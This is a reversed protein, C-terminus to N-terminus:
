RADEHPQGPRQPMSREIVRAPNAGRQRTIDAVPHQQQEWKDDQSRPQIVTRTFGNETRGQEVGGEVSEGIEQERHWADRPQKIQPGYRNDDGISHPPRNPCWLNGSARTRAGHGADAPATSLAATIVMTIDYKGPIPSLTEKM